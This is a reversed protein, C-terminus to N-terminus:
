EDNHRFRQCVSNILWKAIIIKTIDFLFLLDYINNILIVKEYKDKGTFVIFIPPDIHFNVPKNVPIEATRHCHITDFWFDVYGTVFLFVQTIPVELPYMLM